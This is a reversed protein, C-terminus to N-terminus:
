RNVKLRVLKMLYNFGGDKYYKKVTNVNSHSNDLSRHTLYFDPEKIIEEIEAMDIPSFYELVVEKGYSTEKATSDIINGAVIEEILEDRFAPLFEKRLEESLRDFNWRYNSFKVRARLVNLAKRREVPLENVFRYLEKHEDRICHVKGPSNVSSAENDQRYNVFPLGLYKVRKALAFVKFNFSTDQYSAGPTPLFSIGNDKIFSTKYMASWIAAKAFFVEPFVDGPVVGANILRQGINECYLKQKYATNKNGKTWYFYFNTKCVDLDHAICTEYMIKLADQELFDDSELITFYDAELAELGKNMSDGYGSNAKTIVRIRSDRDAFEQIIDTSSDTSGDNICIIEIDELSQDVLSQLCERLYKEVNYIPVLIGVKPKM